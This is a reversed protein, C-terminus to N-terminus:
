ASACRPATLYREDNALTVIVALPRASAFQVSYCKVGERPAGSFGLASLRAGFLNELDRLVGTIPSVDRPGPDSSGRLDVM